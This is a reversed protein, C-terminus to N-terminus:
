HRREPYLCLRRRESIFSCHTALDRTAENQLPVEYRRRRLTSQMEPWWEVVQFMLFVGMM